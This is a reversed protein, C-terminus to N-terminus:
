KCVGTQCTAGAGCAAGDTVATSKCGSLPLCADYTCPNKDDCDTTAKDACSAAGACSIHGWADARILLGRRNEGSRQEWGALLWGDDVPVVRADGLEGAGAFLFDVVGVKTGLADLRGFWPSRKFPPQAEYALGAVAFSGDALPRIDAVQRGYDVWQLPGVERAFTVKDQADLSVLWAGALLTATTHQVRNVVGLVGAGARPLLRTFALNWGKVALKEATVSDVLDTLATERTKGGLSNFRAVLLRDSQGCGLVVSDDALAVVAGQPLLANSPSPWVVHWAVKDDDSFHVLEAAGGFVSAATFDGNAHRTIDSLTRQFKIVTTDQLQSLGPDARFDHLTIVNQNFKPAGSTVFLRLVGDIDFLRMAARWPRLEGGYVHSWLQLPQAIRAQEKGADDVKLLGVHGTATPPSWGMAAVYGGGAVPLADYLQNNGDSAGPHFGLFLKDRKGPKCTGAACIGDLTCGGNPPCPTGTAPTLTCGTKDCGDLTCPKGDSCDGAQKGFCAEATACKLHGFRDSRLLHGRDSPAAGSRVLLQAGGVKAHMAVVREAASSTWTAQWQIAGLADIRAWWAHKGGSQELQGGVLAGGGPEALMAAATAYPVPMVRSALQNGAVDVFQVFPHAIKNEALTGALAIRGDSGEAVAEFVGVQQGGFARVWLQKGFRDIAVADPHADGAQVVSGACVGIKGGIVAAAHTTRPNGDAFVIAGGFAGDAGIVRLERASAGAQKPHVVEGALMLQGSEFPVLARPWLPSASTNQVAFPQLKGAFLDVRTVRVETKGGGGVANVVWAFGDAAFAGGGTEYTGASTGSMADTVVPSAWVADGVDDFRQLWLKAATKSATQVGVVLSGGLAKGAVAATLAVSTHVRVDVPLALTGLREKTGPACAGSKCAAGALCATGDDCTSGDQADVKVCEFSSSSVSNCVAVQCAGTALTCKVASGAACTGAKCRDNVTCGDNDGNCPKDASAATDFTCKGTKSDCHDVTCSNGDECNAPKYVCGIQPDCQDTTCANDDSCVKAKGVCKGALCADSDTCLDGDTCAGGTQPKAQCSGTAPVCSNTVCAVGVIPPCFVDADTAQVCKPKAGSKDCHPVGNCLNGDDQALCDANTQCACEKKGGVCQGSLCFDGSTCGDGDDCSAGTPEATLACQGTKPACRRKICHSDDVTPCTVKTATNLQCKGSTKNCFLTGNCQDGDGEKAECEADSKCACAFTGAICQGASCYDGVTCSDNDTCVTGTATAALACAGSEPVCAAKACATDAATKCTVVSAENLECTGSQKNCFLLGNCQNGDGHKAECEADSKCFCTNTGAQCGGAVCIDGESCADGDDCATGPKQPTLACTGTNPNCNNKTCASDAATPCSVVTAPNVKCDGSAKDCYLVGNCLNGDEQKDCDASQSCKCLDTPGACKGAECVDGQTCPDGDDCPAGKAAPNQACEGTQEDCATLLCATDKTTDCAVATGTNHRCTYPFHALDCYFSGGCKSALGSCEASDTCTCWSASGATCKGAKCASDVSCPAGDDCPTADPRPTQTCKGTIPACVSLMCVNDSPACAVVTTHDLRCRFPTASKDCTLVGNCPNGDDLAACDNDVACDCQNATGVCKGSKCIDIATCADGDDCPTGFAATECSPPGTNVEQLDHAQADDIKSDVQYTDTVQSIDIKEQSDPNPAADASAASDTSDSTDAVAADTAADPEAPPAACAITAWILAAFRWSSGAARHKLQRTAPM